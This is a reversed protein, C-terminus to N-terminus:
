PRARTAYTTRHLPYDTEVDFGLASLEPELIEWSFRGGVKHYSAIALHASSDKLLGRAGEIVPVEAGEIDMKIFDARDLGEEAMFDPLSVCPLSISGPADSIGSAATGDAKFSITGSSSYLAKPVITANSIGNLALNEALLERNKPDPEFCYVHGRTAKKAAYLAFHGYFSGCDLVIDDEKIDRKLIYGQLEAGSVGLRRVDEASSFFSICSLDQIGSRRIAFRVEVGNVTAIGDDGELRVGLCTRAGDDDKFYPALRMIHLAQVYEDLFGSRVMPHRFFGKVLYGDEMRFGGKLMLYNLKLPRLLNLIDMM